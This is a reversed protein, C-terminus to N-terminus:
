SRQYESPDEGDIWAKELVDWSIDKPNAAGALWENFTLGNSNRM